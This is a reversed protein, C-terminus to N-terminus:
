PTNGHRHGLLWQAVGQLRRTADHPVGTGDDPGMVPQALMALEDLRAPTLRASRGAWSVIAAQERPSLARAPARAPASPPAGHLSVDKSYVVLTGAALDGLRKFDRRLLMSLAGIAYAMPLFDAARLLNRIISAAPTVPLGSDMVVQLGMMRKGPTAGSTTLEFVVPYFWELAFYLITLFASGVGGMPAAVMVAVVFVVMRVGLDVLYALSRSVVGAPRLSLAIGEPTEATYLTDLSV